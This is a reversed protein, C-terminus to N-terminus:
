EGELKDGVYVDSLSTFGLNMRQLLMSFFKHTKQISRQYQGSHETRERDFPYKLVGEGPNLANPDPALNFDTFGAVSGRAGLAESRPRAIFSKIEHRDIVARVFELNPGCIQNKIQANPFHYYDLLQNPKHELQNSEWNTKKLIGAIPTQGTKLAFDNVSRFNHFNGEIGAMLLGYGLDPNALNPTPRSNEETLFDAYNNTANDYCGAPIAAQMAVYSNVNMGSILASAAVVNGMSHAAINKSGKQISDAYGKLAPGFKWAVYESRNYHTPIAGLVNHTKNYTPWAFSAFRGKYGKWWLRKFFSEAFTRRDADTMNWGHVHILLEDTEDQAPVFQGRGPWNIRVFGVPPQPPQTTRFDPPSPYSGDAVVQGNMTGKATEFMEEVDVLNLWVGPGGIQQGNIELVMTLKGMGRKHGEFLLYPRRLIASGPAFLSSAPLWTVQNGTVTGQSFCTTLLDALQTRAIDLNWLYRHDSIETSTRFLKVAPAGESVDTWKFGVKCTGEQIKTYFENPLDLKLLQMDELDRVTDITENDSNKPAAEDEQDDEIDYDNNIWFRLPMEESATEGHEIVADRNADIAIDVPLNGIVRTKNVAEATLNSTQKQTTQPGEGAELGIVRVLDTTTVGPSVQTIEWEALLLPSEAISDNREIWYEGQKLHLYGPGNQWLLGFSTEFSWDRYERQAITMPLDSLLGASYAGPLTANTQDVYGFHVSRSQRSEDAWQSQEQLLGIQSNSETIYQAVPYENLYKHQAKSIESWYTFPATEVEDGYFGPVNTLSPADGRTLAPLQWTNMAGASTSSTATGGEEDQTSNGTTTFYPQETTSTSESISRQADLTLQTGTEDELWDFLDTQNWSATLIASAAGKQYHSTSAASAQRTFSQSGFLAEADTEPNLLAREDPTLLAPALRVNTSSRNDSSQTTITIAPVNGSAPTIETSEFSTSLTFTEMLTIPKITRVFSLSSESSETEEENSQSITQSVEYRKFFHPVNNQDMMMYAPNMRTVSATRTRIRIKVESENSRVEMAEVSGEPPSGSGTRAIRFNFWDYIGPVRRQLMKKEYDAGTRSPAAVRVMQATAPVENASQWIGGQSMIQVGTVPVWNGEEIEVEFKLAPVEALSQQWDWTLLYHSEHPLGEQEYHPTGWLKLRVKNAWDGAVITQPAVGNQFMQLATASRGNKRFLSDNRNPDLGAAIEWVDPVGDGDSDFAYFTNSAIASYPSYRGGFTTRARVRHVSTSLPAEYQHHWVDGPYQTEVDTSYIKEWRGGNISRELELASTQSAQSLIVVDIMDGQSEVFYWIEPASLTIWNILDIEGYGATEGTTKDVIYWAMGPTAQTNADFYYYSNSWAFNANGPVWSTNGQTQGPYIPYERGDVHRLALDHGWRSESINLYVPQPPPLWTTDDTMGGHLPIIDLPISATDDYIVLVASDWGVPLDYDVHTYPLTYYESTSESWFEREYNVITGAPTASDWSFPNLESTYIWRITSYDSTSVYSAPAIGISVAGSNTPPNLRGAHVDYRSANGPVSIDPTWGGLFDTQGIPMTEGTTANVVWWNVGEPVQATITFLTIPNNVWQGQHTTLYETGFQLNGGNSSDAIMGTYTWIQWRQNALTGSQDPLIDSNNLRLKVPVTPGPPPALFDRADFSYMSLASNPVAHTGDGAPWRNGAANTIWFSGGVPATFTLLACTSSLLAANTNIGWDDWSPRQVATVAQQTIPGWPVQSRVTFNQNAVFAPLVVRVERLPPPASIPTWSDWTTYTKGITCQQNWTLDLLRFPQSPDFTASVYYHAEAEDLSVFDEDNPGFQWSFCYGWMPEVTASYTTGNEQRVAFQHGGRHPEVLFRVRRTSGTSGTWASPPITVNGNSNDPLPAVENTTLDRLVLGNPASPYNGILKRGIPGILEGNVPMSTNSSPNQIVFYNSDKGAEVWIKFNGNPATFAANAAISPMFVVCFILVEVLAFHAFWRLCLRSTFFARFRATLSKPVSKNM